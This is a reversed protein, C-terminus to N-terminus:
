MMMDNRVLEELARTKLRQLKTMEEQVNISHIFSNKYKPDLQLYKVVDLHDEKETIQQLVIGRAIVDRNAMLIRKYRSHTDDDLRYGSALTRGIWVPNIFTGLHKTHSPHLESAHPISNPCEIEFYGYRLDDMHKQTTSELILELQHKAQPFDSIFGNVCEHLSKRGLKYTRLKIDDLVNLIAKSTMHSDPVLHKPSIKKLLDHVKVLASALYSGIGLKSAYLDAKIERNVGDQNSIASGALSILNMLGRLPTTILKSMSSQALMGGSLSTIQVVKSIISENNIAHGCEHLLLAALEQGNFTDKAMKFFSQDISIIWSPSNKWTSLIADMTSGGSLISQNIKDVTSKSPVITMIFYQNSPISEVIIQKRTFSSLYKFIGNTNVKSSNPKKLSDLYKTCESILGLVEDSVLDAM